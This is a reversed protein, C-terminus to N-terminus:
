VDGDRSPLWMTDDEETDPLAAVVPVVMLLILGAMLLVLALAVLAGGPLASIEPVIRAALTSTFLGITVMALGITATQDVARGPRGSRFATPPIIRKRLAPIVLVVALLAIVAAAGQIMGKVFSDFAFATRILTIAAIVTVVVGVPLAFRASGASREPADSPNTM